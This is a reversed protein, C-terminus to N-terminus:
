RRTIRRRLGDIAAALVIVLGKVTLVAFLSMGMLRLGVDLMTLLLVGLIVGGIKGVGGYLSVGGIVAAGVVDLLMDAALVPSGTEIRATLIISAMGACIGSIVFAGLVTFEVPVGAVRAAEHGSGVAVLWRGFVTRNILMWALATVAAAILLAVPIRGISGRGVFSFAGPLGAISSSSTHLSTYWVAAGSLLLYTGLTAMFSPMRVYAAMAGNALGILAGVLIFSAFAVVIGLDGSLYGGDRTILSAAIVSTMAVTATISLDIAAVLLVFMLGIALILLPLLALAMDYLTTVSAFGPAIVCLVAGLVLIAAVLSLMHWDLGRWIVPLNPMPNEMRISRAAPIDLRM